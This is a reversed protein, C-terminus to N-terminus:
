IKGAKIYELVKTNITGTQRCEEIYIQAVKSLQCGELLEDCYTILVKYYRRINMLLRVATAADNKPLVYEVIHVFIDLTGSQSSRAMIAM